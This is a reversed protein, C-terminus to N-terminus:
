FLAVMEGNVNTPCSHVLELQLYLKLLVFFMAYTVKRKLSKIIIQRKVCEKALRQCVQNSKVLIIVMKVSLHITLM